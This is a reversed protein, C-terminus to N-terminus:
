VVLWRMAILVCEQELAEMSRPENMPGMVRRWMSAENHCWAHKNDDNGAMQTSKTASGRRQEAFGAERSGESTGDVKQTGIWGQPVGRKPFLSVCLILHSAQDRVLTCM